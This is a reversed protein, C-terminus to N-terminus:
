VSLVDCIQKKRPNIPFYPSTGNRGPHSMATSTFVPRPGPVHAICTMRNSQSLAVEFTKGGARQRRGRSGDM